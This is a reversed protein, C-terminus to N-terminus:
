LRESSRQKKFIYEDLSWTGPGTFFYLLGFLVFMFPHQDEYWFHGQGVFFTIYGLTGATVIAGVRTFLGLTLLLGAILESTKGAYVMFAASDGKFTEWTMYTQMLEPDFVEQGHYVLLLGIIIRVTALAQKLLIPNPSLLIKM